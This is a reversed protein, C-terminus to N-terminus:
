LDLLPLGSDHLFRELALAVSVRLADLIELDHKAVVLHSSADNHQVRSLNCGSVSIRWISRLVVTEAMLLICM